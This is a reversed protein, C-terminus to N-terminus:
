QWQRLEPWWWKVRLKSCGCETQSDNQGERELRSEVGSGSDGKRFTIRIVESDPKLVIAGQKVCSVRIAQKDEKSKKKPEGM